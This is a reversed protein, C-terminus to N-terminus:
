SITPKFGICKIADFIKDQIAILEDQTVVVEDYRLGPNGKISDLDHKNLQEIFTLNFKDVIKSIFHNLEKVKEPEVGAYLLWSKIVKEIFQNYSWKANSLHPANLKINDRVSMLDNIAAQFMKLEFNLWSQIIESAELAKSFSLFIMEKENDSLSDAFGQTMGDIMKLINTEDDLCEYSLDEEIFFKCTGFFNPIRCVLLEGRLLIILFGIDINIRLRNGYMNKYWESILYTIMYADSEKSNEKTALIPLSIKLIKSVEAICNIVRRPIAVNSVNFKDDIDRVIRELDETNIM